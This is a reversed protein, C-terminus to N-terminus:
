PNENNKSSLYTRYLKFYPLCLIINTKNVNVWNILNRKEKYEHMGYPGTLCIWKTINEGPLDKSM